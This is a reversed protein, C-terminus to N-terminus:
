KNIGNVTSEDDGVMQAEAVYLKEDIEKPIPTIATRLETEIRRLNYRDEYTVLNIAVGLHGYRGSRPELFTAKRFLTNLCHVKQKEQVFAYYQTVGLLTLEDMLNIEYPKKMHKEMFTTVTYPFTASYLMIQRTAPLHKIVNDLAGQFDQGLLKDAEDLVLVKCKAIKAIGKEILDLVRGPTGIMLQVVGNLRMIDDRLDTGGTTVMIKLQIHKSLEICIQSTQLALERTPVIILAQVDKVNPDIMELVPISYAGTKGTGNKARAIIDQGSLAVGISAEQIPSPKEWGKEFIGMLLDRSLCFDEFEVGKTGTVDATKFRRDKPPIKITSKWDDEKIEKGLIAAAGATLVEVVSTM